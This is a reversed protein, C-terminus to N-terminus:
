ADPRWGTLADYENYKAHDETAQWAPLPPVSEPAHLPRDAPDTGDATIEIWGADLQQRRWRWVKQFDNWCRQQGGPPSEPSIVRARPFYGNDQAILRRSTLIYFAAAAWAKHMQNLLFGYVALQLARNERLEMERIRLGGFKLDVIARQGERKEVVLDVIGELQGNHFPAATLSINSCANIVKAARLQQILECLAMKGSALLAAADAVKGPLLL